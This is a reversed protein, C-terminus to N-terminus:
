GFSVVAPVCAELETLKEMVTWSAQEMVQLRSLMEDVDDAQKARIAALGNEHVQKHPEELAKFAPSDAFQHSGEGEYYWQGLRCNTHDSFEDVSRDLEARLCLYVEQKWVLHDMKVSQLFSAHATRVITDYMSTSVETMEEISSNIMQSAEAVQATQELSTAIAESVGATQQRTSETLNTIEVSAEATRSALSRVEDAVVAFGRGHEGARAAEIAANLALLNTQEAISQIQAVFEEISSSTRSLEEISQGMSESQGYLRELTSSCQNMMQSLQGFNAVSDKLVGTESMLSKAGSVINGRVADLFGHSQFYISTAQNEASFEFNSNQKDVGSEGLASVSENIVAAMSRNEEEVRELQQQLEAILEASRENNRFLWKKM